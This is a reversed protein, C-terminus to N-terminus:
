CCSFDWKEHDWQKVVLEGVMLAPPSLPAKTPHRIGATGM